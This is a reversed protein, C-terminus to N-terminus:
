PLRGILAEVGRTRLDSRDSSQLPVTGQQAIVLASWFLVLTDALLLAPTNM